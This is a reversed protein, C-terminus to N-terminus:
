GFEVALGDEALIQDHDPQQPGAIRDLTRLTEIVLLTDGAASGCSLQLVLRPADRAHCVALQFDDIERRSKPDPRSGCGRHITM